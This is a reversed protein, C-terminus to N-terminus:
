FILEFRLKEKRVSVLVQLKFHLQFLEYEEDWHDRTASDGTAICRIRKAITHNSKTGHVMSMSNNVLSKEIIEHTQRNFEVSLIEIFEDSDIEIWGKITEGIILEVWEQFAPYKSHQWNWISCNEMLLFGKRSQIKFPKYKQYLKFNEFLQNKNM